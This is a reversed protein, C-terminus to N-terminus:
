ILFLKYLMQCSLYALRLISLNTLRIIIFANTGFLQFSSHINSVPGMSAHINVGYTINNGLDKLGLLNCLSISIYLSYKSKKSASNTMKATYTALTYRVNRYRIGDIMKDTFVPIYFDVTKLFFFVTNQLSKM